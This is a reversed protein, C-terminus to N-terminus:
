NRKLTKIPFKGITIAVLTEFSSGSVGTVRNNRDSGAVEPWKRVGGRGSGGEEPLSARSAMM